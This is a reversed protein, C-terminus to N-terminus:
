HLFDRLIKCVNHMWDRLALLGAFYQLVNADLYKLNVGVTSGTQVVACARRAIVCYTLFMMRYRDPVCRLGEFIAAAGEDGIQNGDLDLTQLTANHRHPNVCEM